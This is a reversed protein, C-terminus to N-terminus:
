EGAGQKTWRDGAAPRIQQLFRLIEAPKQPCIEQLVRVNDGQYALLGGRPLVAPRARTAVESSPAWECVNANVPDSASGRCVVRAHRRHVYNARGVHLRQYEDVYYEIRFHGEPDAFIAFTDSRRDYAIMMFSGWNVEDVSCSYDAVTEVVGADTLPEDCGGHFLCGIVCWCAHLNEGHRMPRNVPPSFRAICVNQGHSDEIWCQGQNDSSLAASAASRPSLIAYTM